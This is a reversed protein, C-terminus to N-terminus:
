GLYEGKPKVAQSMLSLMEEFGSTGAIFEFNNDFIIAQLSYQEGNRLKLQDEISIVISEITKEFIGERKLVCVAAETTPSNLLEQAAIPSLGQKAAHATIIELRGDAIKSHTNMIGAAVKVIKGLHGVLLVREFSTTKLYDLTDGLYNSCSVQAVELFDYNKSVFENGYNGFTLVLDRYGLTAKQRIELFISEKLAKISKPEVIGTTGIISIGGQIGLRPNFTRKALEEGGIADIQVILGDKYDFEECLETLVRTIEKRPTENIAAEGVKVKLGPLTVRGIGKGGAIEIGQETTSRVCVRIEVGDTVDPDDGADKIVSACAFSDGRTANIIETTVPLGHPSTYSEHTILKQTFLMRTAAKAALVACTGTTFGLRLRESGLEIYHEFTM